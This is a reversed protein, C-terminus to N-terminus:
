DAYFSVVDVGPDMWQGRFLYRGMLSTLIHFAHSRMRFETFVAAVKPRPTDAARGRSSFCATSAAASAVKIWDRRSISKIPMMADDLFQGFCHSAAWLM